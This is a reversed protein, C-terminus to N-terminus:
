AGIVNHKEVIESLLLGATEETDWTGWCHAEVGLDDALQQDGIVYMGRYGMEVSHSTTLHPWKIYLVSDELIMDM